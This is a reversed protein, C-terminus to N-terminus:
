RAPSVPPCLATMQQAVTTRPFLEMSMASAAAAVLQRVRGHENFPDLFGIHICGERLFPIEDAPPKRLRLVIDARHLSKLRDSSTTAGADRYEEDSRHISAGIGTEVEIEAGFKALRAATGPVM